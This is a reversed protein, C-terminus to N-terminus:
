PRSPISVPPQCTAHRMRMCEPAASSERAIIHAWGELWSPGSRGGIYPEPSTRMTERARAQDERDRTHLEMYRLRVSNVRSLELYYQM